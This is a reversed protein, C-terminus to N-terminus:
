ALGPEAGVVFRGARHQGRHLQRGARGARRHRVHMATLLVDDHGHTAAVHLRLPHCKRHRLTSTSCMISDNTTRATGPATASSIAADASACTAGPGSTLGRATHDFGGSCNVVRTTALPKSSGYSTAHPGSPQSQIVSRTPLRTTRTFGASPLRLTATVIS